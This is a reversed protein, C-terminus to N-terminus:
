TNAVAPTLFRIFFFFFRIPLFILFPFFVLFSFVPFFVFSFFVFPFFVFPFSRFFSFLLSCLPSSSVLHSSVLFASSFSYSSLVLSSLVSYRSPVLHLPFNQFTFPLRPLLCTVPLPPTAFRFLFQLFLRNFSLFLRNAPSNYSPSLHPALFHEPASSSLPCVNTFHTFSNPHFSSSTVPCSLCVYVVFLGFCVLTFVFKFWRVRSLSALPRKKKERLYKM